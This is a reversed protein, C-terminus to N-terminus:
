ALYTFEEKEVVKLATAEEEIEVQPGGTLNRTELTKVRWTEESDDVRKLV